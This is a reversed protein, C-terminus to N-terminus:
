PRERMRLRRTARQRVRLPSDTGFPDSRWSQWRVGRFLKAALQDRLKFLEFVGVGKGGPRVARESEFVLERDSIGLRDFSRESRPEGPKTVCRRHQPGLLSLCVSM